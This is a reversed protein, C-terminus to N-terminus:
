QASAERSFVPQHQHLAAFVGIGKNGRESGLAWPKFLMLNTNIIKKMGLSISQFSKMILANSETLLCLKATYCNNRVSSNSQSRFGLLVVYPVPSISIGPEKAMLRPRASTLVVPFHQTTRKTQQKNPKKSFQFRFHTGQM